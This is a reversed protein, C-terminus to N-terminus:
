DERNANPQHQARSESYDRAFPRRNRQSDRHRNRYQGFHNDAPQKNKASQEIFSEIFIGVLSIVLTHLPQM